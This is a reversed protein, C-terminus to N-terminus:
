KLLIVVGTRKNENNQIDIFTCVWTYTGQACVNTEHKTLGDWGKNIDDSEFIVEGWRDYIQLLFNDKKIGTAYVKFEDNIGDFDPSFATPAYFTIPDEVIVKGSVTDRCGMSSTVILEVNYTGSEKFYHLPNTANSTDGDMFNWYSTDTISSLNIFDVEPKIMSVKEPEAIFKADPKPYVKILGPINKIGKCGKSNTLTLSVDYVGSERYLHEPNYEYSLNDQQNDGFNWVYSEGSSYPTNQNFKVLLPQCGNYFNPSFDITPEPYFNLKLSDTDTSGCGDKVTAVIYNSTDNVIVSFPTAIIGSDQLSLEYPGGAPSNINATIQVEEGPCVSDKNSILELHVPESVYVITQSTDSCGNADEVIVVYTANTVPNDMFSSGGINGNWTYSYGPTGGTTTATIMAYRGNCLYISPPTTTVLEAPRNIMFNSISTCRNDDQVTVSYIGEQLGTLTDNNVSSSSWLYTYDGAVTGGSASVVASGNNIDSYCLLDTTSVNSVLQIPNYVSQTYTSSVCGNETVTLSINFTGSSNFNVQQPGQYGQGPTANGGGFNWDYTAASSATGTYNINTNDGFCNIPSLIFDATPIPNVTVIAAGSVSTGTCNADSVGVLTYTTTSTPNVTITYPSSSIATDLYNNTGDTYVINWPGTGTLNVTIQTSDGLCISPTGSITATPLPYMTVAASGSVTGSCGNSDTFSVLTYTTPTVPSVNFIYPNTTIGNVPYTNTGDTYVIDWPSVGTLDVQIPVSSGGCVTTSGSITATLVPPNSLTVSSTQTCGLSDTVTVDYTGATLNSINQTTATTSWSYSFPSNGGSVVNVGATGNAGGNCLPDTFVTDLNMIPAIDIQAEFRCSVASWGCNLGPNLQDQSSAQCVFDVNTNSDNNGIRQISYPLGGTTSCNASCGNGIWEPGITINFGNINTNFGAIDSASWGWVCFDKVNGQDDIIIAWSNNGPNWFINRGWYNSASSNDTKSVVSCPAFSNPLHWLTANVSNINSYSDSIAVVWGSTNVPTSYLNSIEIYDESGTGGIAGELGCESILISGSGVTTIGNAQIWFSTDNTLNPTTYAASTDLQTGGISDSWWEFNGTSGSATITTNDGSCIYFNGTLTPTDIVEVLFTDSVTSTPCTSCRVEVTFTTTASPSAVYYSTTSWAQVVNTGDLVQYEYNGSCSLGGSSSASFNITDVGGGCLMVGIPDITLSSVGCQAKSQITSFLILFMLLIIYRLFKM